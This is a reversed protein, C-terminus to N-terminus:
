LEEYVAKATSSACYAAGAALIFGLPGGIAGAALVSEMMAGAAMSSGVGVIVKGNSGKEEVREQVVDASTKFVIDNKVESVVNEAVSGDELVAEAVAFAIDQLM